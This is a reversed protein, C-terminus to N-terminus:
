SPSRWEEVLMTIGTWQDGAALNVTVLAIQISGTATDLVLENPLSGLGFIVGAGPAQSLGAGFGHGQFTSPPQNLSSSCRFMIQGDISVALLPTRAPGGAATQLGMDLSVIRWRLPLLGNIQPDVGAGPPSSTICHTWGPGEQPGELASGPWARGNVTVVYGAMLTGLILGSTGSGRQVDVRVYCQGPQLSSFATRVALNLLVGVGMVLPFTQTSGDFLPTLTQSFARPKADGQELFRGVVLLTLGPARNCVSVLLSDEGTFLFQFPVAQIGLRGSAVPASVFAQEVGSPM